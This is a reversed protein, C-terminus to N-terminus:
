ILRVLVSWGVVLALAVIAVFVPHTRVPCLKTPPQVEDRLSLRRPAFIDNFM